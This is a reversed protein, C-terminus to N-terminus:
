GREAGRGACTSDRIVVEFGTSELKAKADPEAFGRMIAAELKKM